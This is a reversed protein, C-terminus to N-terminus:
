ATAPAGSRAKFRFAREAEAMREHDRGTIGWHDGRGPPWTWDEPAGTRYSDDIRQVESTYEIVAGFPAIFYGFVNNGPGHRGPGWVAAHGHDKLRGIGRMVSDLDPMEFALHNLSSVDADAYALAHHTRDCRMFSMMRTRDSLKFGLVEQAFRTAGDRDKANLVAHTLQLPRDKDPPLAPTGQKETVVRYVQGEPGQVVFGHAAGPEDFDTLPEHSFGAAGARERTKKVEDASGAFTVSALARVPAETVSVVYPQDATGRLFVTNGRRGADLLGWVETLFREAAAAQPVELEVSRLKM